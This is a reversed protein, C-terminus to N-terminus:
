KWYEDDTLDPLDAYDLDPKDTLLESVRGYLTVCEDSYPGGRFPEMDKLDSHAVDVLPVPVYPGSRFGNNSMLTSMLSARKTLREQGNPGNNYCWKYIGDEGRFAVGWPQVFCNNLSM